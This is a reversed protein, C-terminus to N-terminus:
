FDYVFALFYVDVYKKTAVTRSTQFSALTMFIAQNRYASSQISRASNVM